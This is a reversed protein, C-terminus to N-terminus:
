PQVEDVLVVRVDARAPFTARKAEAAAQTAFTGAATLVHFGPWVGRHVPVALAYRKGKPAKPLTLIPKM